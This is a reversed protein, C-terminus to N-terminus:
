IQWPASGFLRPTPKMIRDASPRRRNGGHTRLGLPPLKRENTSEPAEKNRNSERLEKGWQREQKSPNKEKTAGRPLPGKKKQATSPHQKTHRVDGRKQEGKACGLTKNRGGEGL